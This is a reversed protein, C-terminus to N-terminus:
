KVMEVHSVQEKAAEFHMQLVLLQGAHSPALREVACPMLQLVLHFRDRIVAEADLLGGVAPEGFHDDVNSLIWRDPYDCSAGRNRTISARVRFRPALQLWGCLPVRLFMM